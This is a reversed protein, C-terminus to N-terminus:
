VAAAIAATSDACPARRRARASGRPRSARPRPAAPLGRADVPGLVLDAHEVPPAEERSPDARVVDHEAQGADAEDVRMVGGRRRERIEAIVADGRLRDDERADRAARVDAVHDNGVAPGIALAGIGHVRAHERHRLAEGVDREFGNRGHLVRGAGSAVGRERVRRDAGLGIRLTITPPSPELASGNLPRATGHTRGGPGASSPQSAHPAGILVDGSGADAHDAAHMGNRSGCTRGSRSRVERSRGGAQLRSEPRRRCPSPARHGLDGRLLAADREEREAGHGVAAAIRDDRRRDDPERDLEQDVLLERGVVRRPRARTGRDSSGACSERRPPTTREAAACNPARPGHESRRVISRRRLRRRAVAEVDDGLTGVCRPAPASVCREARRSRYEARLPAAPTRAPAGCAARARTRPARGSRSSSAAPARRARCQEARARSRSRSHPRAARAAARPRAREAPELAGNAFSPWNPATRRSTSGSSTM